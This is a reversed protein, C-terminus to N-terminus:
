KELEKEYTVIMLYLQELNNLYEMQAMNMAEGCSLMSEGYFPNKIEKENSLWYGGRNNFAMPCYQYYTEAEPVGFSKLSQYLVQTLKEFAGRQIELDTSSSIASVEKEMIDLQRMWEKYAEGKLLSMDTSEIAAKTLTSAKAAQEADSAVLANKVEYYKDLVKKLQTQFEVPAPYTKQRLEESNSSQSSPGHKAKGLETGMDMNSHDHGQMPNGGKKLVYESYLLYAGTVVVTENEQLGELIEIRDFNEIGTKVMRFQFVGEKPNVWVHSGLEDRIVADTPLALSKKSSNSLIINAQMGPFFKREQNPIVARLNIIQTGQRFQPSLFSVIGTVSENEFGNVVVKVKDEKNVLSAEEPYLEAEVWIKDLNEVKYLAGGESVYQGESASIDSIVGSSPALFTIRTQLNKDKSLQNIQTGTLGLLLLKKEAAKLFSAYREKQQMENYQNLALLYERQLTLLQESYVEYLPQGKQILQGVEKVYLREIRGAVRSSIIDIADQNVKLSGTLITTNGIEESQVKQTTINGLKIQSESLMIEGNESSAKSVPVLDMACIPCTGPKEEIIQPHMPCTYTASENKSQEGSHDHKGGCSSLWLGLIIAFAINISTKMNLRM